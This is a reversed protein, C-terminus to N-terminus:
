PQGKDAKAFAAEGHQEKDLSLTITGIVIQMRVRIQVPLHRADDTLWVFLRASKSYLVGNFINAECRITNFKGLKTEIQERQQAEVRVNVFKKGDSVPIQASQGPELHLTRLRLLAGLVDSACSPIDTEANRITANKLLDREDYHAKGRRYDYRVTTLKHRKGETADLRTNDACFRPGNLSAAYNDNVTFLKSVLGASEVHVTTDWQEKSAPRFNMKATGAYWLRWEVSYELTEPFPFQAATAAVTNASARQAGSLQAEAPQRPALLLALLATAGAVRASSMFKSNRLDAQPM